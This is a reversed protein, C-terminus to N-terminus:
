KVCALSLKKKLDSGIQFYRNNYFYKLIAYNKNPQLSQPYHDVNLM